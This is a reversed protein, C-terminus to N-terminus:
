AYRRLSRELTKGSIPTARFAIGRHFACYGFPQDSGTAACCSLTEGDAGDIPWACEGTLRTPWPRATGPPPAAAKLPTPAARLAPPTKRVKRLDIVKAPKAPKPASGPLAKPARRQLGARCVIGIISNRTITRGYAASLAQAIELASQGDLWRDIV